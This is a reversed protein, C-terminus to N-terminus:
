MGDVIGKYWGRDIVTRRRHCNACRVVCKAIESEIRRWRYGRAVMVSVDLVKIGRVHDFELVRM